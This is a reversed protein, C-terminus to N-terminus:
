IRYLNLLAKEITPFEFEFGNALLKGPIVNQGETLTSAAEAYIAKM